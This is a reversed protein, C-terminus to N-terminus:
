GGRGFPKDSTRRSPQLISRVWTLTVVLDAALEEAEQGGRRIVRVRNVRDGHGVLGVVECADVVFINALM